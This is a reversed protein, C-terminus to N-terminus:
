AERCTRAGTATLAYKTGQLAAPPSSLKLAIGIRADGEFKRIM